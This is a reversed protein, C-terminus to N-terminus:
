DIDKGAAMSPVSTDDTGTKARRDIRSDRGERLGDVQKFTMGALRLAKRVLAEGNLPLNKQTRRRVRAKEIYTVLRRFGAPWPEPYELPHSQEPTRRRGAPADLRALPSRISRTAAMAVECEDADPYKAVYAECSEVAAEYADIHGAQTPNHDVPRLGKAREADSILPKATEIWAKAVRAISGLASVDGRNLAWATADLIAAVDFALSPGEREGVTPKPRARYALADLVAFVERPSVMLEVIESADPALERADEITEGTLRRHSGDPMVALWREKPWGDPDRGNWETWPKL